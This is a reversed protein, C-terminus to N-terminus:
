ARRDLRPTADTVGTVGYSSLLEGVRRLGPLPMDDRRFLHDGRVVRGTARGDHDRELAGDDRDEVAALAVSNLFWAAGSRHQVRVPVEAVIADLVDRDLAGAVSEHYGIARVNGAAAAARLSHRFTTADTVEPPGLNVSMLSAALALLHV